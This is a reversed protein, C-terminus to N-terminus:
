QLFLLEKFCFSIGTLKQGMYSELQAPDQLNCMIEKWAEYLGKSKAVVHFAALSLLTYM